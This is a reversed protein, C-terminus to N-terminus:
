QTLWTAIFQLRTQTTVLHTQESAHTEVNTEQTQIVNVFNALVGKDQLEHILKHSSRWSAQSRKM